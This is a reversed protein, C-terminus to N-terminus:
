QKHHTSAALRCLDREVDPQRVRHFAGRWNGSQDVRGGHDCGAHVHNRTRVHDKLMGRRGQHDDGDDARQSRKNAAVMPTVCVSM